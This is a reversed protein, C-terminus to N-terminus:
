MARPVPAEVMLGMKCLLCLVSLHLGRQTLTLLMPAMVKVSWM